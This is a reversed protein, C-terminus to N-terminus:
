SIKALGRLGRWGSMAYSPVIDTDNLTDLVIGYGGASTALAAISQARVQWRVREVQVRSSKVM